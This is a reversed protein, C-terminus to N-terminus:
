INVSIKPKIADGKTREYNGEPTEQKSSFQVTNSPKIAEKMKNNIELREINTTAKILRKQLDKDPSNWEM